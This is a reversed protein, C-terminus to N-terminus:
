GDPGRHKVDEACEGQQWQCQQEDRRGGSPGGSGLGTGDLPGATVEPTWPDKDVFADANGGGQLHVVWRANRWVLGVQAAQIPTLREGSALTSTSVIQPITWAPMAAVLRLDNGPDGATLVFADWLPDPVGLHHLLDPVVHVGQADAVSLLVM